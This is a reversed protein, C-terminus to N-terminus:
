RGAAGADGIVLHRNAKYALVSLTRRTADGALLQDVAELFGGRFVANGAQEPGSGVAYDRPANWVLIWGAERAWSELVGRLTKHAGAEVIWSGDPPAKDVQDALRAAAARQDTDWYRYFVITGDRWTWDYGSLVALRDLLGALAGRRVLRIPPADALIAMGGAIRAPREEIATAIGSLSTLRRLAAPLSVADRQEFALDRTAIADPLPTGAPALETAPLPAGRPEIDPAIDPLPSVMVPAPTVSVAPVGLLPPVGHLPPEGAAFAVGFNVFLFVVAAGATMGPGLPVLGKRIRRGRRRQLWVRYALSFASGLLMTWALGIPGLLFGFAGLMMADGPYLPWRRGLWQAAMIPLAVAAIGLAMGTWPTWPSNGDPSLYRWLAAAGLLALVLRPDIVARRADLWPFVPALYAWIVLAFAFSPKMLRVGHMSRRHSHQVRGHLRRAARGRPHGRGQGRQARVTVDLARELEFGSELLDAITRFCDVRAKRGLVLAAIARRGFAGLRVRIRFPGMM